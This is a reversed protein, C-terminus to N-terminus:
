SGDEILWKRKAWYGVLKSSENRIGGLPLKDSKIQQIMKKSKGEIEPSFFACTDKSISTRNNKM